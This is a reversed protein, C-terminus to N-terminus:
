AQCPVLVPLHYPNPVTGERTKHRRRRRDDRDRHIGRTHHRSWTPLSSPDTLYAVHVERGAVRPCVADDEGEDDGGELDHVHDHGHDRVLVPVLDHHGDHIQFADHDEAVVQVVVVVEQGVLDHKGAAEGEELHEPRDCRGAEAVVVVVHHEPTGQEELGGDRDLDEGEVGEVLIGVVEGAALLITNYAGAVGAVAKVVKRIGEEASAWTQRFPHPVAAEDVDLDDHDHDYANGADEHDREVLSRTQGDLAEDPIGGNGYGHCLGRERCLDRSSLGAHYVRSKAAQNHLIGCDANGVHLVRRHSTDWPGDLSGRSALQKTGRDGVSIDGSGTTSMEVGDM